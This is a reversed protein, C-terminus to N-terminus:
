RTEYDAALTDERGRLAKKAAKLCAVAEHLEMHKTSLLTLIEKSTIKIKSKSNM